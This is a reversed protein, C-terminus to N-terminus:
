AEVDKVKRVIWLEEDPKDPSLVFSLQLYEPDLRRLTYLKARLALPDSSRVSIGHPSMLAHILLERV